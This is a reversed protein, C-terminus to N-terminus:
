REPIGRLRLSFPLLSSSPTDHSATPTAIYEDDKVTKRYDAMTM